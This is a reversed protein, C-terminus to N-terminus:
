DSLEKGGYEYPTENNNVTSSLTAVQQNLDDVLRAKFERLMILEAESLNFSNPTEVGTYDAFFSVEDDSARKKKFRFLRSFLPTTSQKQEVETRIKALQLDAIAEDLIHIDHNVQRIQDSLQQAQQYILCDSAKKKKHNKTGM